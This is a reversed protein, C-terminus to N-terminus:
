PSPGGTVFSGVLIDLRQFFFHTMVLASILLLCAGMLLLLRRQRTRRREAATEIIPITAIPHRQLISMLATPGRISADLLEALFAM